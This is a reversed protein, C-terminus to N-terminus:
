LVPIKLYVANREPPSGLPCGDGTAGGTGWWVPFKIYRDLFAASQAYWDFGPALMLPTHIRKIYKNKPYYLHLLYAPIPIFAGILFVWIM